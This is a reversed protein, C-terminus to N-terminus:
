YSLVLPLVCHCTVLTLSPLQYLVYFLLCLVLHYIWSAYDLVVLSCRVEYALLAPKVVHVPNKVLRGLALHYPIIGSELGTGVSYHVGYWDTYYDINTMLYADYKDFCYLVSETGYRETLKVVDTAAAANDQYYYVNEVLPDDGYWENAYLHGDEYARYWDWDDGSQFTCDQYMLGSDDFGYWREEGTQYDPLWEVTSTLIRGSEVYMYSGDDLLNWGEEYDISSLRAIGFGDIEYQVGSEDTYVTNTMMRGDYDFCRLDVISEDDAWPEYIEFLGSPARGNEGYYYYGSGDEYWEDVLLMGEPYSRYYYDVGDEEDYVSFTDGCVPEGGMYYYIDGYEDTYFGEEPPADKSLAEVETDVVAPINDEEAATDAEQELVEAEVEAKPEAPIEAEPEASDEAATELTEETEEEEAEPEEAAEHTVMTEQHAPEESVEAALANVSVGSVSMGAALVISLLRAALRTKGKYM